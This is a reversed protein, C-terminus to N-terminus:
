LNVKCNISARPAFPINNLDKLKTAISVTVSVSGELRGDTLIGTLGGALPGLRSGIASKALASCPVNGALDLTLTGGDRWDLKGKGKLKMMGSEVVIEEFHVIPDELRLKGSVKTKKDHFIGDLETPHPPVYGDLLLSFSGTVPQSGQMVAEIEGSIKMPPLDLGLKDGVGKSDVPDAQVKAIKADDSLGVKAFKYDDLRAWTMQDKREIEASVPGLKVDLFPVPLELTVGDLDVKGDAVDIKKAKGIVTIPLSTAVRGVRIKVGDVTVPTKSAKGSKASQELAVLSPIDPTDISANTVTVHEPEYVLLAGKLPVEVVDADVKVDPADASEVKVGKLVIKPEDFQWPLIGTAEVKDFEVKLGREEAESAISDRVIADFRVAVYIAALAFLGVLSGLVILGIKVPKPLTKKPLEFSSDSVTPRNGEGRTPDTLETEGDGMVVTGTPAGKKRPAGALPALPIPEGSPTRPTRIEGATGQRPDTPKSADDHPKRDSM